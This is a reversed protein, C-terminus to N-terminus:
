GGLHNRYSRRHSHSQQECAVASSHPLMSTTPKDVTLPALDGVGKYAMSYPVRAEDEGRAARKPPQTPTNSEVCEHVAELLGMLQAQAASLYQEYGLSTPDSPLATAASFLREATAQLRMVERAALLVETTSGFQQSELQHLMFRGHPLGVRFDGCAAILVASSGVLGYSVTVVSKSAASSASICDHLALATQLSGGVSNVLLYISGRNELGHHLVLGMMINTNNSRLQHPLFLIGDFALRNTLYLWDLGEAGSVSFGVRPVGILVM